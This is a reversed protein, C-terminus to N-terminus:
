SELPAMRDVDRTNFQAAAQILVRMDTRAVMIM